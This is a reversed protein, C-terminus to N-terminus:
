NLEILGIQRLFDARLQVQMADSTNNPQKGMILTLPDYWFGQKALEAAQQVNTLPSAVSVSFASDDMKQLFAKEVIDGSTPYLHVADKILSVSWEYTKGTELSIDYDALSVSHFGKGSSPMVKEILPNIADVETLTFLMTFKSDGSLHWYMMPQPHLSRAVHNPSLLTLRLKETGASYASEVARTGGASTRMTPRGKDLSPPIYVVQLFPSKRPAAVVPAKDAQSSYGPISVTEEALVPASFMSLALPVGSLYLTHQIKM